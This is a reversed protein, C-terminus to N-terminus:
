FFLWEDLLEIGPQESEWPYIYPCDLYPYDDEAEARLAKEYEEDMRAPKLDELEQEAASSLLRPKVRHLNNGRM